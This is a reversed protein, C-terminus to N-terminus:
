HISKQQQQNYLYEQLSIKRIPKKEEKKLPIPGLSDNEEKENGKDVIEKCPPVGTTQVTQAPPPVHNVVVDAPTDNVVVATPADNVVVTPVHTDSVVVVTTTTTTAAAAAAAAAAAPVDNVVEVPTTAPTHRVSAMPPQTPHYFPSTYVDDRQIQELPGVELRPSEYMSVSERRDEYARQIEDGDLLITSADSLEGEDVVVVPHHMYPIENAAMADLLLKAAEMDEPTADVLARDSNFIRMQQHTNDIDMPTENTYDHADPPEDSVHKNLYDRMWLKKRPLVTSATPASTTTTSSSSYPIHQHHHPHSRKHRSQKKRRSRARSEEDDTMDNNSEEFVSLSSLSSLSSLDAHEDQDDSSNEELLPLADKHPLDDGIDIDGEVDLLEDDSVEKVSDLATVSVHTAPTPPPPPLPPPPSNSTIDILSNEESKKKPEKPKLLIINDSARRKLSPLINVAPLKLKKEKIPPAIQRRLHEILCRRKNLCACSGFEKEFRELMVGITHRRKREEEEDIVQHQSGESGGHRLKHQHHWNMNEKWSIHGRQWGWSITVQQGKEIFHRAFLGLHITKDDRPLVVNRLEANPHCSRRIYRAKNGFQRTDICADLSPYFMMHSLPTGLLVFDHVPDFKFESKLLVDGTVQMLYRLAPIPRHAFLGQNSVPTNILVGKTLFTVTDMTVFPGHDYLGEQHKWRGWREKAECFIAHVHRSVIRSKVHKKKKKNFSSPEDKADLQQLKNKAIPIRKSLKPRKRQSCQDCLYHDPITSQSIHVCYAHQWVLCRECQITFGDDETSTCVCRILGTDMASSDEQARKTEFVRQQTTM